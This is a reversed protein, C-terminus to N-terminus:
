HTDSLLDVSFGALQQAVQVPSGPSMFDTIVFVSVLLGIISFFSVVFLDKKMSNIIIM